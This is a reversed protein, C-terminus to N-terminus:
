KVAEAKEFICEGYEALDQVPSRLCYNPFWWISEAKVLKGNDNRDVIGLIPADTLAAIEEPRVWQLESNCVLPELTDYMYADSLFNDSDKDARIESQEKRSVKIILDGTKNISYNM